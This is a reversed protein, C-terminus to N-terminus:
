TFLRTDYTFTELSASYVLSPARLHHPNIVYNAEQRVGVSPVQLVLSRQERLWVQGYSVATLSGAAHWGAPLTAIEIESSDFSVGVFVLDLRAALARDLHVLYELACLSRSSGAYAAPIGVPNWRGGNIESGRGDFAVPPPDSHRRQGLHWAEVTL